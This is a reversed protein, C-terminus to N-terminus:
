SRNVRVVVPTGDTGGVDFSGAIDIPVRRRSVTLEASCSLVNCGQLWFSGARTLTHLGYGTLIM